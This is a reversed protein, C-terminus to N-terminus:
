DEIVNWGEDALENFEAEDIEIYCSSEYVNEAYADLFEDYDEYDSEWDNDFGAFGDYYPYYTSVYDTFDQDDIPRDTKLLLTEDCGCYGNGMDLKYYYMKKMPPM